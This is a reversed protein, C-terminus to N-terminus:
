ADTFNFTKSAYRFTNGYMKRAQDLLANEEEEEIPKEPDAHNKIYEYDSAYTALTALNDIDELLSNTFWLLVKAVNRNESDTVIKDVAFM